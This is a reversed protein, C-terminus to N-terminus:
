GRSDFLEFGAYSVLNIHLDVIFYHDKEEHSFTYDRYLLELQRCFNPLGIGEEGNSQVSAVAVPNKVQVALADNKLTIKFDIVSTNDSNAHKFANEILPFILLPTVQASLNDISRETKVQVRKGFRLLQLEIYDDIIKLEEEIPATKKGTEYLMYRLIKSLRMVTESTADSHSRSLSYISNLTNFLFHPNIQAKLHRLESQLKERMLEKEKKVAEIRLRFLKIAAAIGIVQMLDLISYFLRATFELATLSGPSSHTIFPWIVLHMMARYCLLFFVLAAAAEFFLRGKGPSKLWRPILSYNVYYVAPMKVILLFLQGFFVELILQFGPHNIFSQSLYIETFLNVSVYVTWFLIHLWTGKSNKM